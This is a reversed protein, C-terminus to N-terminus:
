RAKRSRGKGRSKEPLWYMRMAKGGINYIASELKGDNRLDALRKTASANRLGFQKAYDAISFSNPPPSGSRGQRESSLAEIDNWSFDAKPQSM